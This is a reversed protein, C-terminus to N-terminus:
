IYGIVSRNTDEGTHGLDKFFLNNTLNIYMKFLYKTWVHKRFQEQAYPQFYLSILLLLYLQIHRILPGIERM